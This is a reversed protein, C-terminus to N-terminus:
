WVNGMAQKIGVICADQMVSSRYQGFHMHPSQGVVDCMTETSNFPAIGYCMQEVLFNM